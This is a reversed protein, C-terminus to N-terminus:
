KGEVVRGYMEPRRDAFRDIEHKGPVRVIRKARALEPHIDAFLIAEDAHPASALTEGNPDAIQSHGIFQFGSELGIRNVAAFYVANEMARVNIAHQAVCLAGPPWNTPLAILDAGDLALSRASEPFSVDYCINMGVRLGEIEFVDLPRDGPTALKDVGLKPLHLKRYSGVLGKPGVLVCANFLQSETAELLGVIAYSDTQKCVEGLRETAPGPISQAVARAAALDDFGYGTIACEPFITLRASQRTTERLADLIRNLNREPEALAVDMQVGAIKWTDAM